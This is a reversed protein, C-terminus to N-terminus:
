ASLVGGIKGGGAFGSQRQPVTFRLDRRHHHVIPIEVALPATFYGDREEAERPRQELARTVPQGGGLDGM